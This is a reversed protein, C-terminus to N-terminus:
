ARRKYLYPHVKVLVQYDLHHKEVEEVIHNLSQGQMSM